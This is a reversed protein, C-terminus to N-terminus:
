IKPVGIEGPPHINEGSGDSALLINKVTAITDRECLTTVLDGVQLVTDGRPIIVEEGRQISVFVATRPIGLEAITKGVAGSNAPLSVELFQTPAENEDAMTPYGESLQADVDSSLQEFTEDSIVGDQRLSLLSSRQARLMERWATDLEEAELVPDALLMGRIKQALDSAQRTIYRKLKEWAHSSLMGDNHLRDLRAVASRMSTLRAHQLEYEVEADTRTIIKLWRILPAMTTSQVLLTFLVVGFTMVRLLDREAGLAVPLSLALALSIAGRLDGWNLMHQWTLPIPEAIRNVLWGLGYVVIIRAIFVALLAWLIPQWASILATINVQLGILLFLISNALFAVYEWFNFIVIRSTPSMGQQSTNGNVLGAAVVALVGSVGLREAM